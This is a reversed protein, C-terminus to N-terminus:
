QPDFDPAAACRCGPRWSRTESQPESGPPRLRLQWSHSAQAALVALSSSGPNSPATQPHPPPAIPAAAAALRARRVSAAGGRAEGSSTDSGAAASGKAPPRRVGNDGRRLTLRASCYGRSRTTGTCAIRRMACSQAGDPQDACVFACGEAQQGCVQRVSLSVSHRIEYCRASKPLPNRQM